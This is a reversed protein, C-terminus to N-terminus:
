EECVEGGASLPYVFLYQLLSKTSAPTPRNCSTRPPALTPPIVPIAPKCAVGSSTPPISFTSIPSIMSPVSVIAPYQSVIINFPVHVYPMQADRLLHRLNQRLNPHVLLKCPHVSTQAISVQLLLSVDQECCNYLMSSVRHCRLCDQCM